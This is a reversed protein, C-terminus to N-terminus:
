NRPVLVTPMSKENICINQAASSFGGPHPHFTVQRLWYGPVLNITGAPPPNLHFEVRTEVRLWEGPNLTILTDPADPKGYLEVYGSSSRDEDPSVALALSMYTFTAAADSPQLDSLHPSVPLQLSVQGTNLVKFEVEFPKKADNDRPIVSQIYVTLSRPDRSDAGCDAILGGGYGGGDGNEVPRAPPYRLEVRQATTTLDISRVQQALLPTGILLLLPLGVRNLLRM